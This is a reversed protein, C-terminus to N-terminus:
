RVIWTGLIIGIIFVIGHTCIRNMIATILFVFLMLLHTVREGLIAAIKESAQALNQVDNYIENCDPCLQGTADKIECDDENKPSTKMYFPFGTFTNLTHYITDRTERNSM